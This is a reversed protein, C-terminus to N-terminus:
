GSPSSSRPRTCTARHPHQGAPEPARDRRTVRPHAHGVCPVNNYADLYRRGAADTIWVGEARAVQVPEDYFLPDIAPGFAAARRAALSPDPRAAGAAGLARAVEDWGSPRWRRSADAPLEANYREAFAQEELGQAVRWSSIAITVASRAAWAVGLVELEVDELLWAASTATSCWGRWRPPARRGRPREGLSDLVSALDTILATHSM